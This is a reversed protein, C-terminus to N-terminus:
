AGFLDLLSIIAPLLVSAIKAIKAALKLWKM